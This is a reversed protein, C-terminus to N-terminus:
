FKNKNNQQPIEMTRDKLGSIHETDVVRKNIGELTSKM